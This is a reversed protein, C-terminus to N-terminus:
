DENGSRVAGTPWQREVAPHKATQVRLQTTAKITNKAIKRGIGWKSCLIDANLKYKESKLASM